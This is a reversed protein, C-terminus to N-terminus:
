GRGIVWGVASVFAAILAVIVLLQVRNQSRLSTLKWEQWQEAILHFAQEDEEIHEEMTGEILDLDDSLQWAAQEVTLGQYRQRRQPKNSM